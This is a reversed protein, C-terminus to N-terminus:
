AHSLAATVLQIIRLKTADLDGAFRAGSARVHGGGGLLKALANVDVLPAVSKSRLSIKTLPTGDDVLGFEAHTAQTLMVSVRVSSISQTYDTIGGTDSPTANAERIQARSLSMVALRDDCHLELSALSKGILLVRGLSNQETMYYLKVHDAGANLLSGAAQMVDANVNSHRFWGTDTAIGLYLPNAVQAPLQDIATLSLLLRCLHAVPVCAAAATVEVFRMDAIDADGQAHHDIVIVKERRTKLYEAVPQVQNFSGTDVLVIADPEGLEEAVQSLPREPSLLLYPAAPPADCLEPLWPPPPGYFWATARPNTSWGPTLNLARVLGTASGAADGDPKLHTLVLVRSCARLRTAIAELTTNTSYPNLSNPM